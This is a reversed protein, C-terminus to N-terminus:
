ACRGVLLWGDGDKKLILRVGSPNRVLADDGDEAEITLPGEWWLRHLRLPAAAEFLVPALPSAPADSQRRARPAFVTSAPDRTTAGETTIGLRFINAAGLRTRLAGIFPDAPEADETVEESDVRLAKARGFPETTFAAAILAGADPTEVASSAVTRGSEAFCVLRYRRSKTDAVNKAQPRGVSRCVDPTQLALLREVTRRWRQPDASPQPLTLTVPASTLITAADFELAPALADDTPEAHIGSAWLRATLVAAEAPSPSPAVTLHAEDPEVGSLRVAHRPFLTAALHAAWLALDRGAEPVCRELVVEPVRRVANVALERPRLGLARARANVGWITRGDHRAAPHSQATPSDAFLLGTLHLHLTSVAATTYHTRSTM